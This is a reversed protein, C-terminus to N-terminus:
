CYWHSFDLHHVRYLWVRWQRHNGSVRRKGRRWKWRRLWVFWGRDVTFGVEKSQEPSLTHMGWFPPYGSECSVLPVFGLSRYTCLQHGTRVRWGSSKDWLGSPSNLFAPTINCVDTQLPKAGLQTTTKLAVDCYFHLNLRACPTM